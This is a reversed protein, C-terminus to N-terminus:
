LEWFCCVPSHPVVIGFCFLIFVFPSTFSASASFYNQGFLLTQPLPLVPSSTSSDPKYIFGVQFCLLYSRDALFLQCLCCVRSLSDHLSYQHFVCPSQNVFAFSVFVLLFVVSLLKKIRTDM